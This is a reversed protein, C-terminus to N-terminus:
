VFNIHNFGQKITVIAVPLILIFALVGYAFPLMVHVTNYRFLRGRQITDILLSNYTHSNNVNFSHLLPLLMTEFMKGKLGLSLSNEYFIIEVGM